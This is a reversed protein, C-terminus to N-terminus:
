ANKIEVNYFKYEFKEEDYMNIRERFHNLTYNTYKGIRFDDAIDYLTAIEKNESLRLGRGISQLNRIRSKSPSAFVVNHLNRINIGTSFTGFSAVIIADKEKETIHRVQERDDVDTQGSVFFVHRDGAEEKIMKHLIKGHKEVLQFLVLSNGKLNLVMKKIFNNRAECSVIYEIESQYNGDRIRKAVSEPYKLIIAKIKFNALHKDEILQKTTVSNYIKGFLGELVFKHTKSGDLTGTCGIRVDANVMNTMITTLSKARFSHAEDGLVFDFQHFWEPDQTFISQWTSVTIEKQNAKEKGGYIKHIKEETNFSNDNIAYQAFDSSMQEVLSITPVILLGKKYGNNLLYRTIIYLILSKGSATPSLLLTRKSSLSHLASEIQYERPELQLNLTTIFSLFDEKNINNKEELSNEAIYTFKNKDCFAKLYEFLGIYLRNLKIDFLYIKGNWLRKKFLPTFQYGPVYFSFYENLEKAIHRECIIKLYVEDEKQIILDIQM